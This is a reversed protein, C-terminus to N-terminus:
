PPTPSALPAVLPPHVRPLVPPFFPLRCLHQSSPRLLFTSNVSVRPSHRVVCQSTSYHGARGTAYYKTGRLHHWGRRHRISYFFFIAAAPSGLFLLPGLTASVFTTAKAQRRRSPSISLFVACLALGRYFGCDHVTGRM